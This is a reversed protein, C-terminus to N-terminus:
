KGIRYTGDGLRTLRLDYMYAIYSLIKELSADAMMVEVKINSVNGTMIIKAGSLRHLDQLVRRLSKGAYEVSYVEQEQGGNEGEAIITNQMPNIMIDGNNGTAIWKAELQICIVDLM